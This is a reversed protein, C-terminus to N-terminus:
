STKCSFRRLRATRLSTSLLASFPNRPQWNLEMGCILSWQVRAKGAAAGPRVEGALHRTLGRHQAAVTKSGISVQALRRM